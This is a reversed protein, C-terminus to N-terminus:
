YLVKELCLGNSPAIKPAKSRDQCVLINELDIKNIKNKGVEMLMAVMIRIMNHLFGNGHFYIDIQSDIIKFEISYITRVYNKLKHNKTFSRFDHEGIFVKSADIMKNIDLTYLFYYRYNTFLPNYEGLDISYKYIKGKASYRSHFDKTVIEVSKIYIDRPLRSNIANQMNKEPMVIDTDFHFVQGISHVGTDTRGASHIKVINKLIIKLVDEIESQVTRLDKQTQFGHFNTGDYSVICKYRM